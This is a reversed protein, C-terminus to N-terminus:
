DLENPTGSYTQHAHAKPHPQGKGSKCLITSPIYDPLAMKVLYALNTTSCYYFFIRAWQRITPLCFHPFIERFLITAVVCDRNNTTPFANIWGTVTDIFILLYRIHKLHPMNTFDM